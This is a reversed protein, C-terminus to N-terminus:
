ILAGKQGAGRPHVSFDDDYGGFANVTEAVAPGSGSTAARIALALGWFHDAHGAETREAAISVRGSPATLKEPKRLDDRIEPESPIEIRHDEFAELLNAAMVEPVPATPAKRGDAAMRRSIPVSSSFNVAEIRYTGWKDQAYDTAGVGPGTFDIAGKRFTRQACLLDLQANQAPTRLGKMRLIAVTRLTSGEKGLAWIVSLDGSRAFDWGFYLDSTSAMRVLAEGSWAQNCLPIGDRAAGNILDHTLLTMSEDAAICEYNQDYARKDLAEARAENPTIQKGTIASYIKLGMSYARSRPMINTVYRGDKLLQYFMNRTGNLTSSIRCLFDPNASIIPEAAEWIARSDEHFAFEDLILDGSFGRATRPSAAIVKIRGWKGQVKVKVEFHMAQFVEEASLSPDDPTKDEFEVAEVAKQLKECVERAKIAFEAGNDKSNSLVTVLRGPYLLLRDVAWSALTFSKGIQRSWCIVMTKTEHDRAVAEQYTRFKILAENSAITQAAFIFSACLLLTALGPGRLIRRVRIPWNSLWSKM